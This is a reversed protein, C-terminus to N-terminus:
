DDIDNRQMEKPSCGYQERFLRSFHEYNKYGVALAIETYKLSSNTMLKMASELRIGNLYKKFTVGMHKKFIKSFYGYEYQFHNAIMELTLDKAYNKHVYEDVRRILKKDPYFMHENVRMLADKIYSLAKRYNYYEVIEKPSLKLETEIGSSKLHNTILLFMNRYFFKLSETSALNPRLMAIEELMDNVADFDRKEFLSEMRTYATMYDFSDNYNEALSYTIVSDEEVFFRYERLQCLQAYRGKLERISTYADDLYVGLCFHFKDILAGRIRNLVNIIVSEDKVGFLLVLKDYEDFFFQVGDFDSLITCLYGSIEYKLHGKDMDWEMRSVAEYNLIDVLAFRLNRSLFDDKRDDDDGLQVEGWFIEKLKDDCGSLAPKSVTKREHNKVFTMITERYHEPEFDTKPIYDCIGIRFASRVTEFDQYNSIVIFHTDKNIKLMESMFEIGDIGPMVIDTIVLDPKEAALTKLADEACCFSGCLEVDLENYDICKELFERMFLEDEVIALKILV